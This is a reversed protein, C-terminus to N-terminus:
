EEGEERKSIVEEIFAKFHAQSDNPEDPDEAWSQMYQQEYLSALTIADPYSFGYYEVLNTIKSIATRYGKCFQYRRGGGRQMTPDVQARLQKVLLRKQRLTEKYVVTSNRKRQLVGRRGLWTKQEPADQDQFQQDGEFIEQKLRGINTQTVGELHVLVADWHLLTEQTARLSEQEEDTANGRLEREVLAFFEAEEKGLVADRNERHLPHLPGLPDKM